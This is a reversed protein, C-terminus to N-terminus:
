PRHASDGQVSRRRARQWRPAAGPNAAGAPASLDTMLRTAAEIELRAGLQEFVALGARAERAAGTRDGLVATAM